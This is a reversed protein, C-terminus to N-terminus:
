IIDKMLKLDVSFGLGPIPVVSAGSSLLSKKRVLAMARDRRDAIEQQTTPINSKQKIEEIDLVKNGVKNTLNNTIKNKISM